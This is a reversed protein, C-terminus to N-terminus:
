GLASVWIALTSAIVVLVLVNARKEARRVLAM